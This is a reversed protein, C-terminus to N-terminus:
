YWSRGQGPEGAHNVSQPPSEPSSFRSDSHGVFHDTDKSAERIEKALATAAQIVRIFSLQPEPPRLKCIGM